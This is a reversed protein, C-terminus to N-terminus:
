FNKNPFTNLIFVQFKEETTPVLKNYLYLFNKKVKYQLLVKFANKEFSYKKAKCFHNLGSSNLM